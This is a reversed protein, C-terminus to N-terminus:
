NVLGGDTIMWNFDDILNRRAFRAAVSYQSNGGDFNVRKQVQQESWGELLASYNASTLTVGSFMFAMNVVQTINWDGINQNFATAQSFMRNMATVKAVNWQSLDQNFATKMFMFSMNEVNEVNWISIDQNFSTADAFMARMSKVKAVNWNSVNQNFASAGAFMNNMNEVKAVNWDNLNQNFSIAGPRPTYTKGVNDFGIQEAYDYDTNSGFMAIMSTVNSVNWESIDQNFVVAGSFMYDMNTVKDVKWSGINQNFKTAGAFMGAMNTVNAVNWDSIDQNFDSDAFTENMNTVAAVNWQEISYEIDKTGKFMKSFDTVASINPTDTANIKVNTANLFMSAMSKWRINGWREVTLLKHNDSTFTIKQSLDGTQQEVETFLFHPFDGTIEITYVGADEYTHTINGAVGTDTKGDGWKISYNYGEGLTRIMIQNSETVGNGRTDWTTIFPTAEEVTVSRQKNASLGSADTASYSVTYQGIKSTDVSGSIAVTLENGQNDKATAGQEVYEDGVLLTVSANGVLTIVPANKDVSPKGVEDGKGDGCASVLLVFLAILIAKVIVFVLKM